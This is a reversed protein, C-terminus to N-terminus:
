KCASENVRLYDDIFIDLIPECNNWLQFRDLKIEGRAPASLGVSLFVTLALYFFFSKQLKKTKM